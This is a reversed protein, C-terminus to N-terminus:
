GVRPLSTGSNAKLKQADETARSSEQARPSSEPEELFRSLQQYAVRIFQHKRNLVSIM